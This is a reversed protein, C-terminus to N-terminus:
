TWLCPCWHNHRIDFNGLQEGWLVTQEAFLVSSTDAIQKDEQSLWKRIELNM